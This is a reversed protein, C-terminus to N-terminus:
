REKPKKPDIDDHIGLSDETWDFAANFAKKFGKAISSGIKAPLSREKMRESQASAATDVQSQKGHVTVITPDKAKVQPTQTKEQALSVTAIIITLAM